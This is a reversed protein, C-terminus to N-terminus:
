LIKETMAKFIHRFNHHTFSYISESTHNENIFIFHERGKYNQQVFLLMVYFTRKSLRNEM